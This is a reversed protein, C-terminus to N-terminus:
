LIKFSHWRHLTGEKFFFEGCVSNRKHRYRSDTMDPTSKPGAVDTEGFEVRVKLSLMM